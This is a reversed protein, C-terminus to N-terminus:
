NPLAACTRSSAYGPSTSGPTKCCSEGSPCPPWNLSVIRVNAAGSESELRPDVATAPGKQRWQNRNSIVACFASTTGRSAITLSPSLVKTYRRPRYQNRFLLGHMHRGPAVCLHREIGSNRLAVDYLTARGIFRWPHRFHCWHKAHEARSSLCCDYSTRHQKQCCSNEYHPLDAGCGAQRRCRRHTLLEHIVHFDVTLELCYM